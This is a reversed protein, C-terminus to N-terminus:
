PESSAGGRKCGRKSAISPLLPAVLREYLVFLHEVRQRDSTFPQLRYCRDVARDLATHAKVLNPPMFLPDYLDSLTASPHNARAELVARAAEEVAGRKGGADGEARRTAPPPLERDDSTHYSSWYIRAAAERVSAPRPAATGTTEEPPLEPWPFTNYVLKNSYRYDSKLRGCVQRMWAMHMASSLVGFHFLTADPVINLLNSAITTPPLFAIPVYRRRESSVGPIALYNTEPQRIEGFHMPSRALRRTADRRISERHRRVAEVRRVIEPSARLSGPAAGVLWLCARYPGNLLEEAGVFPRLWQAAVADEAALKRAEELSLLLHGGDNPMSGFVVEPVACLPKGRPLVVSTNGAILYPNIAPVVQTSVAEGEQEYIRATALSSAGFGLIVVHVHAQGRAESAWPFTRYGFHLKMGLRYLESWLIGVQEGQTISNTSVFGVRIETGQIFEAAKRYWCTVYDLVGAGKVKGWVHAMDAKQEATQYQKGVFPPNGLIYSCEAPNLITKWNLRLANGHVIRATKRLPLRVYYGGFRESLLLNMQHDMLWLATEAIRAPWEEIEIGSMQDVDLRSLTSVELFGERDRDRYLAEIV